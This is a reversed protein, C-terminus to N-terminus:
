MEDADRTTHQDCRMSGMRDCWMTHFEHTIRGPLVPVSYLFYGITVSLSSRNAVPPMITAKADGAFWSVRGSAILAPVLSAPDEVDVSALSGFAHGHVSFTDLLAHPFNAGLYPVFRRGVEGCRRTYVTHCPVGDQVQSHHMMTEYLRLVTVSATKGVDYCVSM